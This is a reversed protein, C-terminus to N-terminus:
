CAHDRFSNGFMNGSVLRALAVVIWPECFIGPHQSIEHLALEVVLAPECPRHASMADVAAAVGLIISGPLM